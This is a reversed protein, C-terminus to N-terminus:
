NWHATILWTALDQNFVIPPLPNPAVPLAAPVVPGIINGGPAHVAPAVGGVAAPMMNLRRRTNRGNDEQRPGGRAREAPSVIAPRPPFSQNNM